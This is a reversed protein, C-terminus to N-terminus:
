LGLGKYVRSKFVLRQMAPSLYMTQWGWHADLGSSPENQITMAWFNIGRKSYEELFRSYYKSYTTYYQGLFPGKLQGGGKMRGNTKMWGPASWPSAFLRLKGGTLQQAALIYPIKATEDEDVLGFTTLNFDNPTDLYSYERTSFDCSAIPVRGVTYGIGAPGFYSQLLRNRTGNSLSNM